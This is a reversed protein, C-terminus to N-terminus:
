ELKNNEIKEGLSIGKFYESEIYYYTKGCASYQFMNNIHILNPNKIEKIVKVEKSLNNIYEEDTSKNVLVKVIVKEESESHIAKYTDAWENRSLFQRKGYTENFRKM